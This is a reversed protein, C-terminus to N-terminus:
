NSESDGGYYFVWRGSSLFAALTVAVVAVFLLWAMASAYGMKFYQFAQLYLQMAYFLASDLPGGQGQYIM